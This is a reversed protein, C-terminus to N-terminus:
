RCLIMGSLGDATALGAAEPLLAYGSVQIGHHPVERLAAWRGAREGTGQQQKGLRRNMPVQAGARM